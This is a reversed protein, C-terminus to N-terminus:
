VQVEPLHGRRAGRLPEAGCGPCPPPYKPDDAHQLDRGRRGRREGANSRAHPPRGRLDLAVALGDFKLECVMDFQPEELLDAVRAHWAMFEEDDFANGLSLLPVPHEAQTFGELPEAGVRQTPSDPTVLEPHELEIRRLERMLEDYQVDSIEPDDLVYYRHNHYDIRDRLEDIRNLTTSM